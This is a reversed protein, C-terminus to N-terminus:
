GWAPEVPKGDLEATPAYASSFWIVLSEPTLVTDVRGSEESKAEYHFVLVSGRPVLYPHCWPEVWVDLEDEQENKVSHILRMAWRRM